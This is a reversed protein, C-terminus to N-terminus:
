VKLSKVIEKEIEETIYPINERIGTRFPAREPLNITGFEQYYRIDESRFEDSYISEFVNEPNLIM